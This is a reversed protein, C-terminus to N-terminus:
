EHAQREPLYVGLEGHGMPHLVISGKPSLTVDKQNLAHPPLVDWRQDGVTVQPHWGANLSAIACRARWKFMAPDEDPRRMYLGKYGRIGNQRLMAATQGTDQIRATVIYTPFQSVFRNYCEVVRPIPVDIDDQTRTVLTDDIDYVIPRHIDPWLEGRRTLFCEVYEMLADRRDDSTRCTADMRLALTKSPIARLRTLKIM